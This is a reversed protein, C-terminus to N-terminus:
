ACGPGRAALAPELPAHLLALVRARERRRPAAACGRSARRPPARRASGGCALEHALLAERELARLRQDRQEVRQDLLAARWPARSTTIPMACRPRRFTSAFMRPLDGRTSRRRTRPRRARSLATRSPRRSTGCPSRSAVARRARAAADVEREGRVRRVELRDVRDHSPRARAFCVRARRRAARLPTIGTSIWPSAANAPWPM